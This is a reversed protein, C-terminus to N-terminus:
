RLDIVKNNAERNVTIPYERGNVAIMHDCLFVPISIIGDQDSKGEFDTWWRNFVLERYWKAALTESWDSNWIAANPRWHSREWFGWMYIGEVSPHAFAACYLTVLARAKAQEDKTNADFETIKIPLNFQALQNLKKTVTDGNVRGGFHGQVGIGGLSVGADIFGQIQKIYKDTDGGSLISYDNVYFRSGPDLEQCWTFMDNRIQPSLRNEYYHCHVMENNMDYESVRGKFHQLYDQAREQLEDRLDQDNLAKQWSQVLKDRGWYVCHGRTYLGNAESWALMADAADFSLVDRERENSYWKM